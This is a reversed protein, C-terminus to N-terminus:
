QDVLKGTVTLLRQISQGSGHSRPLAEGVDLVLRFQNVEPGIWAILELHQAGGRTLFGLSM